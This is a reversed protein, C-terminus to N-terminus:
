MPNANEQSTSSVLQEKVLHIGEQKKKGSEIIILDVPATTEVARARSATPKAIDTSTVVGNSKAAAAAAKQRKREEKKELEELKKRDVDPRPDPLGYWPVPPIIVNTTSSDGGSGSPRLLNNEDAKLHSRTLHSSLSSSRQHAQSYTFRSTSDNLSPVVRDTGTTMARGRTVVPPTVPTPASQSSGMGMSMQHGHIPGRGTNFTPRTSISGLGPASHPISYSQQLFAQSPVTQGFSYFKTPAVDFPAFPFSALDSPHSVPARALPEITLSPQLVGTYGRQAMGFGNRDTPTIPASRTGPQFPKANINLITSASPAPKPIAQSPPLVSEASQTTAAHDSGSPPPVSFPRPMLSTQGDENRSNDMPLPSM